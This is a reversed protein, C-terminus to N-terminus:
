VTANVATENRKPVVNSAQSETQVREIRGAILTGATLLVLAILLPLSLASVYYVLTCLVAAGFLVALVIHDARNRGRYLWLLSILAAILIADAVINQPTFITQSYAGLQLINATVHPLIARKGSGALVLLCSFGSLIMLARETHAFTRNWRQKILVFAYILLLVVFLGDLVYQNRILIKPLIPSWSHPNLTTAAIFSGGNASNILLLAGLTISLVVLIGIINEIRGLWPNSHSFFAYACILVLAIIAFIGIAYASTILSYAAPLLSGPSRAAIVTHAQQLDSQGLSWATIGVALAIIAVTIGDTGNFQRRDWYLLLRLALLILAIALIYLIIQGPLATQFIGGARSAGTPSATVFQQLILLQIALWLPTIFRWRESLLALAGLVLPVLSLGLNINSILALSTAPSLRALEAAGFTYQFLACAAALILM